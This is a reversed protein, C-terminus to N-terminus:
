IFKRVKKAHEKKMNQLKEALMNKDFSTNNEINGKVQTEASEKDSHTPLFCSLDSASQLYKNSPIKLREGEILEKLKEVSETFYIQFHM